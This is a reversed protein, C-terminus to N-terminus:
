SFYSIIRHLLFNRRNKQNKQHRSNKERLINKGVLIQRPKKTVCIKQPRYALTRANGRTRRKRARM